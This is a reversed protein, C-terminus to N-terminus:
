RLINEDQEMNTLAYEICQVILQNRSIDLSNAIDTLKNIIEDNLRISIVSKEKSTKTTDPKFKEM